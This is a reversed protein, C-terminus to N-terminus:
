AATAAVTSWQEVVNDESEDYVAGVVILQVLQGSSLTGPVLEIIPSSEAGTCQFGTIAGAALSSAVYLEFDSADLSNCLV